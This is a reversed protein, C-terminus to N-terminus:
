QKELNDQKGYVSVGTLGWELSHVSRPSWPLQLDSICSKLGEGVGAERHRPGPAGSREGACRDLLKGKALAVQPAEFKRESCM